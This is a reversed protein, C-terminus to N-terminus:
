IIYYVRSDLNKKVAIIPLPDAMDKAQLFKSKKQNKKGQLVKPFTHVVYLTGVFNLHKQKHV